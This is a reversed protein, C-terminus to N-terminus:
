CSSLSCTLLVPISKSCFVQCLHTANTIFGNNQVYTLFVLISKKLKSPFTKFYIFLCLVKMLVCGCM